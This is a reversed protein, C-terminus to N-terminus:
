APKANHPRGAVFSAAVERLVYAGAIGILVSSFVIVLQTPLVEAANAAITASATEANVAQVRYQYVQGPWLATDIYVYDVVGAQAPIESVIEFRDSGAPARYVRFAVPVAGNVSWQLGIGPQVVNWLLLLALVALVAGSLVPLWHSVRRAQTTARAQALVRQRVTAPPVRAPQSLAALRVAQWTSLLHPLHRSREEAAPQEAEPLSHNLYWPLLDVPTHSTRKKFM